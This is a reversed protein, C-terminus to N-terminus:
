VSKKTTEKALYMSNIIQRIENLLNETLNVAQAQSLVIPLIQLIQKPTLITLNSNDFDSFGTVAVPSSGM